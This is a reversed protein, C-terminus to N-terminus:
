LERGIALDQLDLGMVRVRVGCPEDSLLDLVPVPPLSGRTVSRILLPDFHRLRAHPPRSALLKRYLIDRNLPVGKSPELM